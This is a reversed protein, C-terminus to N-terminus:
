CRERDRHRLSRAGRHVWKHATTSGQGPRRTVVLPMTNHLANNISRSTDIKILNHDHHDRRYTIWLGCVTWAAPVSTVVVVLCDRDGYVCRLEEWLTMDPRSLNGHEKVHRILMRLMDVKVPKGLVLDAGAALYEMVDDDLVNGTVGVVLKAYGEERLRRVAELGCKIIYTICGTGAATLTTTIMGAIRSYTIWLGCVTWAAPVSNVFDLWMAKGGIMGFDDRSSNNFREFLPAIFSNAHAVSLTPFVFFLVIQFVFVILVLLTGSNAAASQLVIVIYVLLALLILAYIYMMVIVSSWVAGSQRMYEVMFLYQETADRTLHQSLERFNIGAIELWELDDMNEAKPNSSELDAKSSQEPLYCLVTRLGAYRHMWCRAMYYALETGYSLGIVSVIMAGYMLYSYTAKTTCGFTFALYIIANRCESSSAGELNCTIFTDAWGYAIILLCYLPLITAASLFSLKYGIRNLDIERVNMECHRTVYKLAINLLQDFSSVIRRSNKAKRFTASSAVAMSQFSCLLSLESAMTAVFQNLSALWDNSITAKSTTDTDQRPSPSDLLADQAGDDDMQTNSDGDNGVYLRFLVLYFVACTLYYIFTLVTIVISSSSAASLWFDLIQNYAFIVWFLKLTRGHMFFSICVRLLSLHQAIDDSKDSSLQLWLCEWDALIKVPVFVSDNIKRRKAVHDLINSAKPVPLSIEYCGTDKTSYLGCDHFRFDSDEDRFSKKQPISPTSALRMSKNENIWKQLESASRSSLTVTNKTTTDRVATIEVEVERASQSPRPVPLPTFVITDDIELSESKQGEM